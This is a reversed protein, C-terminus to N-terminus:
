FRNREYVIDRRVEIRSEKELRYIRARIGCAYSDGVTKVAAIGKASKKEKFHMLMEAGKKAEEISKKVVEKSGFLSVM